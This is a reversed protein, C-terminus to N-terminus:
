LLAENTANLGGKTGDLMSYEEGEGDALNM